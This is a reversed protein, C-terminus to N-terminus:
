ADTQTDDQATAIAETLDDAFAAHPGHVRGLAEVPSPPDGDFAQVRMEDGVLLDRRPKAALGQGGVRYAVPVDDVDEFESLGLVAPEEHHELQELPSVEGRVNCVFAWEADPAQYADEALHAVGEPGDVVGADDM